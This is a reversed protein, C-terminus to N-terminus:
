AKIKKKKKKNKINGKPPRAENEAIDAAALSEKLEHMIAIYDPDNGWAKGFGQPQYEDLKHKLKMYNEKQVTFLGEAIHESRFAGIEERLQEYQIELSFEEAKSESLLSFIEERIAAKEEDNPMPPKPKLGKDFEAKIPEDVYGPEFRLNFEEEDRLTNFAEFNNTDSSRKTINLHRMMNHDVSAKAENAGEMGRMADNEEIEAMEADFIENARMQKDMQVLREAMCQDLATEVEAADEALRQSIDSMAITAM